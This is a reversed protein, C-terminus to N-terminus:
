AAIIADVGMASAGRPLGSRNGFVRENDSTSKPSVQRQKSIRHKGAHVVCDGGFNRTRSIVQFGHWELRAHRALHGEGGHDRRSLM